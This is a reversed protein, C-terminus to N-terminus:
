NKLSLIAAADAATGYWDYSESLGTEMRLIGAAALSLGDDSLLVFTVESEM